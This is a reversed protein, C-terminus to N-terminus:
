KAAWNSEKQVATVLSSSLKRNIKSYGQKLPDGKVGDLPVLRAFTLDGAQDQTASFKTKSGRAINEIKVQVDDFEFKNTRFKNVVKEVIKPDRTQTKIMVRHEKQEVGPFEDLPVVETTRSIINIYKLEGSKISDRLTHSAQMSFSIRPRYRKISKAKSKKGHDDEDSEFEFDPNDKTARRLLRNLLVTVRGRSIGPMHEFASRYQMLNKSKPHLSVVLHASLTPAEDDFRESDRMGGTKLHTYTNDAIDPDILNFLLTVFNKDKDQQMEKLVLMSGAGTADIPFDEDDDDEPAKTLLGAWLNQQAALLSIKELMTPNTDIAKALIDVQLSASLWWFVGSLLALLGGIGSLIKVMTAKM